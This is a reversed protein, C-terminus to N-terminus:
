GYYWNANDHVSKRKTPCGKDFCSYSSQGSPGSPELASKNKGKGVKISHKMMYM